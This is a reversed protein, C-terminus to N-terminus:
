AKIKFTFRYYMNNIFCLISEGDTKFFPFSQNRNPIDIKMKKYYGDELKIAYTEETLSYPSSYNYLIVNDPLSQFNYYQGEEWESLQMMKKSELNFLFLGGKNRGYVYKDQYGLIEMDGKGLITKRLKKTKRSYDYFYYEFQKKKKTATFFGISGKQNDFILDYDTFEGEGNYRFGKTLKSTTSFITKIKGNKYVQFSLVNQNEVYPSVDAEVTKMDHSLFYAEDGFMYFLPARYYIDINSEFLEEQKGDKAKWISAIVPPFDDAKAHSMASYIIADKDQFISFLRAVHSHDLELQEITNSRLDYTYLNETSWLNNDTKIFSELYLKGKVFGIDDMKTMDMNNVKEIPSFSYDAFAVEKAKWVDPEKNYYCGDMILSCLISLVVMSYKSIKIM